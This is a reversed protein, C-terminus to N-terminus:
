SAATSVVRQQQGKSADSLFHALVLSEAPTKLNM